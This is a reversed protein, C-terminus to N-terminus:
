ADPEGCIVCGLPPEDCTLLNGVAHGCPMPYQMFLRLEHKTITSDNELRRIEDEIENAQQNTLKM